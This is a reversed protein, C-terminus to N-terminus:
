TCLPFRVASVTCEWGTFSTVYMVVLCFVCYAVSLAMLNNNNNKKENSVTHMYLACIAQFQMWIYKIKM